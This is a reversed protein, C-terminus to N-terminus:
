KLLRKIRWGLHRRTEELLKHWLGAFMILLDRVQKRVMRNFLAVHLVLVVSHVPDRLALVVALGLAPWVSYFELLPVYSGATTSAPRFPVNWVHTLRALQFIVAYLVFFLILVPAFTYVVVALTALTLVEGPFIFRAALQEVREPGIDVVLTRVGAKVDNARDWLQHILIGRVGLFFAWATATITLLLSLQSASEALSTFLTAVFLTPVAHAYGADTIIGWVGREKLRIPPIAYALPLVYIVALLGAAVTNLRVFFWPVCGAAALLLCLALRQAVSLQAVATPKDARRDAEIDAIDNVVHAYAAVCGASALLGMLAPIARGPPVAELGIYAYAVTLLPPIKSAWWNSGRVLRSFRSLRRM